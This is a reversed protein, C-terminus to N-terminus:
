RYPKPSISASAMTFSAYRQFCTGECCMQTSFASLCILYRYHLLLLAVHSCYAVNIINYLYYYISLYFLKRGTSGDTWLMNNTGHVLCCAARIICVM